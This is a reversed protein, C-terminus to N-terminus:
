KMGVPPEGINNIIRQVTTHMVRHPSCKLFTELGARAFVPERLFLQLTTSYNITGFMRGDM